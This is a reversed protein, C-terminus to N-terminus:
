RHTPASPTMLPPAPTFTVPLETLARHFPGPRWTLQNRDIALTMDPLADLLQSIAEVVILESSQRAMTPCEHRGTAYALHWRNGGGYDWDRATDPRTTPDTNCAAMSILVPQHAPLWIGDLLTQAPPYSVCYNAMPPDTTLIEVMADAVPPAFGTSSPRYRPDSLMLVLTNAIHNRPVEIGASYLTVLQHFKEEDTLHTARHVLRATVDAHAPSDRKSGMLADLAKSLKEEVQDTDISEFMAATATMVDEGIEPPCGLIETNLVEFVLPTIYQPDAPYHEDDNLVRIGTKYGIVLTAPVDPALLVPALTRGGTRMQAYAAHPDQAFAPDYLRWPPGLDEISPHSGPRPPQLTNSDHLSPIPM